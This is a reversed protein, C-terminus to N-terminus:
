LLIYGSWFGKWSVMRSSLGASWLGSLQFVKGGAAYENKKMMKLISDIDMSQHVPSDSYPVGGTFVVKDM